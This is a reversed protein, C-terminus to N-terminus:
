LIKLIIQELTRSNYRCTLLHVTTESEIGCRPCIHNYKKPNRYHLKLHNPLKDALIKIKFNKIKSNKPNTYLTTPPDDIMSYKLTLKWNVSVIKEQQINRNQNHWWIGNTAAIIQKYQKRITTI